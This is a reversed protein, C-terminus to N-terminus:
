VVWREQGYNDEEEEEEEEMAIMIDVINYRVRIFYM